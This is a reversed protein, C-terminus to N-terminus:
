WIQEARSCVGNKGSLCNELYLVYKHITTKKDWTRDHVFMEFYLITKRFKCMYDAYDPVKHTDIVGCIGGCFFLYECGNCFPKHAVCFHKKTNDNALYSDTQQKIDAPTNKIVNGLRMDKGEYINACPYIDGNAQISLVHGYAGCHEQPVLTSLVADAMSSDYLNYQIVYYLIDLYTTLINTYEKEKDLDEPVVSTGYGIPEVFRLQFLANHQHVLHLADLIYPKSYTDAVFSFLMPIEEQQLTQYISHMHKTLKADQVVNEISMEVAGVKGKLQHINQPNLLLGNTQFIISESGVVKSICSVIDIIDDRVLPEGGTLVVKRAQKFFSAHNRIEYLTMDNTTSVSPNSKTSCFSCALNCKRTVSLYISLGRNTGGNRFLGYQKLYKQLDDQSMRNFYVQSLRIWSGNKPNLIIVKNNGQYVQLTYKKLVREGYSKEDM